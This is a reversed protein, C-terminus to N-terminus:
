AVKRVDRYIKMIRDMGASVDFRSEADRRAKGRMLSVVEPASLLREVAGALEEPNGPSFMFGTEGELVLERTGGFRSAVVPTGSALSELVSYPCNEYCESPFILACAEGLLKKKQAGEVRGHAVIPYRPHAKIYKQLEGYLPGDGLIDLPVSESRRESLIEYARLLTRLGKEASLRGIYILRNFRAPTAPFLSVDLFNPVVHIKEEPLGGEILKKRSFWSLAIFGDVLRHWTRLTRHLLLSSAMWASQSVKGRYCRGAVGNWVSGGICKECPKGERLFLGNICFFRYNHVTQVIPVRMRRGAWYVSPSLFPFINHVHIVDPRFAKIRRVIGHYAVFSFPVQLAAALRGLRNRKLFLASDEEYREVASGARKLALELIELSVEEGGRELYKNHVLLVRLPVSGSM